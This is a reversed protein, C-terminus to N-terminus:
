KATTVECIIREMEKKTKGRIKQKRVRLKNQLVPEMWEKSINRRNKDKETDKPETLFNETRDKYALKKDQKAVVNWGM